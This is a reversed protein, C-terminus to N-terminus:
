TGHESKQFKRPRYFPMPSKAEKRSEGCLTRANDLPPRRGRLSRLTEKISTETVLKKKVGREVGLRSPWSTM